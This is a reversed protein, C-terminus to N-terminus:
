FIASVVECASPSIFYFFLSLSAVMCRNFQTQETGVLAGSDFVACNRFIMGCVLRYLRFVEHSNLHKADRFGLSMSPNRTDNTVEGPVCFKVNTQWVFDNVLCVTITVHGRNYVIIFRHALVRAAM